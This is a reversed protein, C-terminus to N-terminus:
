LVNWMRLSYLPKWILRTSKGLLHSPGTEGCHILNYAIIRVLSLYSEFHIKGRSVLMTKGHWFRHRGDELIEQLQQSSLYTMAIHWESMRKLEGFISQLATSSEVVVISDLNYLNRLSIILRFERESFLGVAGTCLCAGLVLCWEVLLGSTCALRSLDM